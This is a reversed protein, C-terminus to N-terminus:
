DSSRAPGVRPPASCVAARPPLRSRASVPRGPRCPAGRLGARWRRREGQAADCALQLEQLHYLHAVPRQLGVVGLEIGQDGKHIPQEGRSRRQSGEISLHDAFRQTSAQLPNGIGTRVDASGDFLTAPRFVHPRRGVRSQSPLFVAQGSGSASISRTKAIIGSASGPPALEDVVARGDVSVASCRLKSTGSANVFGSYPCNAM